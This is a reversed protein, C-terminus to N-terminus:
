KRAKEAARKEAEVKAAAEAEEREAEVKAAAEAAVREAEAKAAAEAAKREAEAKAAAEAEHREADAAAAAPDEIAHGEYILRAAEPAPLEAMDGPLVPAAAPDLVLATRAIVRVMNNHSTRAM